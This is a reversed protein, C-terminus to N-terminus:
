DILFLLTVVFAIWLSPALQMQGCTYMRNWEHRLCMYDEIQCNWRGCVGLHHCLFRASNQKCFDLEVHSKTSLEACTCGTVSMAELHLLDNELCEDTCMIAEMDLQQVPGHFGALRTKLLEVASECLSSVVFIEKGDKQLFENYKELDCSLQAQSFSLLLIFLKLFM